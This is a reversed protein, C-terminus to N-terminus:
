SPRRPLTFCFTSGQERGESEVWVRGGHVEVIRKVLALGIGTGETDHHLRDFLEFIKEHYKPDIGIGNDRVFGVVSDGAQSAGIEIRTKKQDGIFKVANEILNQYVELLRVRDGYVVPMEPDIEVEIGRAKIPGTVLVVAERALESLSVAEPPNVQHGIRSLELLESLLRQMKEAATNIQAIDRQMREADGALADQELLGLFGKITVLPSKLDHSVTYTFRELEANKTELEQVFAEREAEVQERRVIEEELLEVTSQLELTRGRVQEELEDRSRKVQQAMHAFSRTLDGLEDRSATELEWDLDGQALAVAAARLKTIPRSVLRAMIMTSVFTLVLGLILMIIFIRESTTIAAVAAEQAHEVEAEEIAIMEQLSQMVQDIRAEYSQFVERSISGESEYADFMITARDILTGIESEIRDFLAQEAEEGSADLAAIRRFTELQGGVEAEWRLFEEKEQTEGSIVYAFSEQVANGIGVSIAQISSLAPTHFGGLDSLRDEISLIAVLSVLLIPVVISLLGLNVKHHIKM